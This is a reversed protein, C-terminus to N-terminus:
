LSRSTGEGEKGVLFVGERRCGSKVQLFSEPKRLTKPKTRTKDEPKRDTSAFGSLVKGKKIGRWGKDM